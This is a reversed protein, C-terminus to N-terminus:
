FDFSNDVGDAIIPRRRPELPRLAFTPAPEITGAKPGTLYRIMSQRFENEFPEILNGDSDTRQEVIPAAAAQPRSLWPDLPGTVYVGGRADLMPRGALHAAYASPSYPLGGTACSCVITGDPGASPVHLRSDLRGDAPPAALARNRRYTQYRTKSDKIGRLKAVIAVREVPATRSIRADPPTLNKRGNKALPVV